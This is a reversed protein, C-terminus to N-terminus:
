TPNSDDELEKQPPVSMVEWVTLTRNLTSLSVISAMIDNEGPISAVSRYRAEKGM